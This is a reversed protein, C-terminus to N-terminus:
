DPRGLFARVVPDNRVALRMAKAEEGLSERMRKLIAAKSMNRDMSFYPLEPCEMSHVTIVPEGHPMMGEEDILLVLTRGDTPLSFDRGRTRVVGNRRHFLVENEGNPDASGSWEDPPQWEPLRPHQRRRFLLRLFQWTSIREKKIESRDRRRAVAAALSTRRYPDDVTEAFYTVSIREGSEVMTSGM